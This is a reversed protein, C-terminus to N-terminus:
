SFRPRTTRGRRFIVRFKIYVSGATRQYSSKDGAYLLRIFFCQDAVFRDHKALSLLAAYVCIAPARTGPPQFPISHIGFIEFLRLPQQALVKLALYNM